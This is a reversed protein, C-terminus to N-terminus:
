TSYEEGDWYVYKGALSTELVNTKKSLCSMDYWRMLHKLNWNEREAEEGSGPEPPFSHRKSDFGMTRQKQEGNRNSRHLYVGNTRVRRRQQEKRPGLLACRFNPPQGQIYTNYQEIRPSRFQHICVAAYTSYMYTCISWTEKNLNMVLLASISLFAQFSILVIRSFFFASVTTWSFEFIRGIRKIIIFLLKTFCIPTRRILYYPVDANDFKAIMTYLWTSAMTLHRIM